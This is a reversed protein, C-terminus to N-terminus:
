MRCACVVGGCVCVQVLAELRPGLKKLFRCGLVCFKPLSDVYRTSGHSMNNDLPPCLGRYRLFFFFFHSFSVVVVVIVVLYGFFM